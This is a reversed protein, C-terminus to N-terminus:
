ANRIRVLVSIGGEEDYGDATIYSGSITELIIQAGAQAMHRIEGLTLEQLPLATRFRHLTSRTGQPVDHLIVNETIWDRLEELNNASYIEHGGCILDFVGFGAIEVRLGSRMARLYGNLNAVENQVTAFMPHNKALYDLLTKM